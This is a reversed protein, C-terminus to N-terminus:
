SIHHTQLSLINMATEPCGTPESKRLSRPQRGRSAASSVGRM